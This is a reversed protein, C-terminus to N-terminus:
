RKYRKREDDDKKERPGGTFPKLVEVKKNNKKNTEAIQDTADIEAYVEAEKELQFDKLVYVIEGYKLKMAPDFESIPVNFVKDNVKIRLIVSKDTKQKWFAEPLWGTKKDIKIVINNDTNLSIDKLILDPKNPSEEWLTRDIELADGPYDILIDCTADFDDFNKLWVVYRGKIDNDRIEFSDVAYELKANNGLSAKDEARWWKPKKEKKGFFSAVRKSADFAWNALKKSAWLGPYYRVAFDKITNIWEEWEGQNMKEFVRVDALVIKVSDKKSSASKVDVYIRIKGPSTVELPFLLSYPNSDKGAYVKVRQYIVGKSEEM